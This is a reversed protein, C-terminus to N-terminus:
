RTPDASDVDASDFTATPIGRAVLLEAFSFQDLGASEAAKALSVRADEFMRVAAALAVEAGLRETPVQLAAGLDDPVTRAVITM